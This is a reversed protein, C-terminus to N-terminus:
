NTLFLRAWARSGSRGTNCRWSPAKQGGAAPKCAVVLLCARSRGVPTLGTSPVGGCGSRMRRTEVQTAALHQGGSRPNTGQYRHGASTASQLHSAATATRAGRQSRGPTNGPISLRLFRQRGSSKRRQRSTVAARHGARVLALLRPTLASRQCPSWITPRQLFRSWINLGWIECTLIAAGADM